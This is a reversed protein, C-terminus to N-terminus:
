ATEIGWGKSFGEFDAKDAANSDVRRAKDQRDARIFFCRM